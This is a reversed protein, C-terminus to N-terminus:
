TTPLVCKRIFSLYTAGVVERFKKKLM